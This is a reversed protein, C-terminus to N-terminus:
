RKEIKLVFIPALRDVVGVEPELSAGVDVGATLLVVATYDATGVLAATEAVHLVVKAVGVGVFEFIDPPRCVVTRLGIGRDSVNVEDVVVM